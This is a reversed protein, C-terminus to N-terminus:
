AARRRALHRRCRARSAHLPSCYADHPHRLAFVVGCEACRGTGERGAVLRAAELYVLGLLTGASAGLAFGHAEPEGPTMAVAGAAGSLGFVVATEGLGRRMAEVVARAASVGDPREATSRWAAEVGAAAEHRTLDHALALTGRLVDRELWWTRLEERLEGSCTRLLGHCRVFSVVDAEDEIALFARLLGAGHHPRYIEVAADDLGVGGDM